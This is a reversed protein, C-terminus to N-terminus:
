CLWPLSPHVLSLRTAEMTCSVRDAEPLENRALTDAAFQDTIATGDTGLGSRGGEGAGIRTAHWGHEPM